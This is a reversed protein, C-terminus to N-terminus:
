NYLKNMEKSIVSIEDRFWAPSLVETEAGHSLLEQRFDYTPCIFYRFISYDDAATTEEQSPHLPLANFYKWQVGTVKIEV